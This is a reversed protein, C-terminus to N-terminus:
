GIIHRSETSSMLDGALHKNKLAILKSCRFFLIEAHLFLSFIESIAACQWTLTTVNHCGPSPSWFPVMDGHCPMVGCCVSFTETNAWMGCPHVETIAHVSLLIRRHLGHHWGLSCSWSLVHAAIDARPPCKVRCCAGHHLARENLSDKDSTAVIEFASSLFMCLM